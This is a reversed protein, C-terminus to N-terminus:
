SGRILTEENSGDAALEREQRSGVQFVIPARVCGTAKSVRPLSFVAASCAPPHAKRADCSTTSEM